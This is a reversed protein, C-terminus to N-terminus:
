ASQLCIMFPKHIIKPKNLSLNSYLKIKLHFIVLKLIILFRTKKICYYANVYEYM